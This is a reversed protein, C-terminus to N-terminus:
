KGSSIRKIEKAVARDVIGKLNKDLWEQLMPKLAEQVLDGIRPGSEELVTKQEVVDGLSAFAGSAASATEENTIMDSKVIRPMDEDEYVPDILPTEVAMHDEDDESHGSEAASDSTQANEEPSEHDESSETELGLMDEPSILDGGEDAVAGAEDAIADDDDLLAAGGAAAAAGAMLAALGRKADGEQGPEEPVNQADAAIADEDTQTIDPTITESAAKDAALQAAAQAEANAEAIIAALDEDPAVSIEDAPTEADPQEDARQEDARQEDVVPEVDLIAEMDDDSLTDDEPAADEFTDDTLEAMLSKVLDIDEDSDHSPQTDHKKADIASDADLLSQAPDVVREPEAPIDLESDDFDFDDLLSDIDFDSSDGQSPASDQAATEPLNADREASDRSSLAANVGLGGAIASAAAAALGTKRETQPADVPGGDVPGDMVPDSLAEVSEDIPSDAIFDIDDLLAQLDDDGVIDSEDLNVAGQDDDLVTNLMEDFDADQASLDAELPPTAARVDAGDGSLAVSPDDLMQTLELIDDADSQPASQPAAAQPTILTEPDDLMDAALDDSLDDTLDFDVLDLLDQTSEDDIDIEPARSLDLSDGKIQPAPPASAGSLPAASLISRGPRAGMLTSVNTNGNADVSAAAAESLDSADDDDSETLGIDQAGAAPTDDAIIKRISALIDEMSPEHENMSDPTQDSM